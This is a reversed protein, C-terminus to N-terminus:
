TNEFAISDALRPDGVPVLPHRQLVGILVAAYLFGMGAFLFLDTPRPAGLKPITPLVLWACDVAHM